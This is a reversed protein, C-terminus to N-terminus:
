VLSAEILAGRVRALGDKVQELSMGPPVHGTRVKPVYKEYEENSRVLDTPVVKFLEQFIQRNDHATKRWLNLVEDSLPDAILADEDLGFEDENAHPAPRM